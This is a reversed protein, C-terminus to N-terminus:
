VSDLHWVSTPADHVVQVSDNPTDSKPSAGRVDCGHSALPTLIVGGLVMLGFIYRSQFRFYKRM